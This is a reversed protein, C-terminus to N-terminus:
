KKGKVHYLMVNPHGLANRVHRRIDKDNDDPEIFCQFWIQVYKYFVTNPSASLKRNPFVDSFWRALMEIAAIYEKGERRANGAGPAIVNKEAIILAKEMRQSVLAFGSQPKGTDIMVQDALHIMLADSNNAERYYDDILLKEAEPLNNLAANLRRIADFAKQINTKYEKVSTDSYYIGGVQKHYDFADYLGALLEKIKRESVDFENELLKIIESDEM